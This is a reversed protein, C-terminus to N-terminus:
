NQRNGNNKKINFWSLSWRKQEHFFEDIRSDLDTLFNKMEDDTLHKEKQMIDLIENHLSRYTFMTTEPEVLKKYESIREIKTKLDELKFPKMIYDFAGLKMAEIATEITAYGTMMIVEVTQNLQRIHRLVDMGGEVNGDIGELNKDTLVIDFKFSNLNKLADPVNNVPHVEHELETLFLTLLERLQDDDEVLLIKM